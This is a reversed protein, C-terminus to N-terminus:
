PKGRRVPTPREAPKKGLDEDSALAIIKSTSALMFNDDEDVAPYFAAEDDNSIKLVVPTDSLIKIKFEDPGNKYYFWMKKMSKDVSYFGCTKAYM